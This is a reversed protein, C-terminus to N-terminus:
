QTEKKNTQIRIVDRYQWRCTIKQEPVSTVSHPHMHNRDKGERIENNRKGRNAEWEREESRKVREEKKGAETEEEM